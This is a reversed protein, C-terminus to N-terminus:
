SSSSPAHLHPMASVSVSPLIVASQLSRQWISAKFAIRHQPYWYLCHYSGRSCPHISWQHLCSLGWVHQQRMGLVSISVTITRQIKCHCENRYPTAQCIHSRCFGISIRIFVFRGLSLQRLIFFPNFRAPTTAIHRFHIRITICAGFIRGLVLGQLASTSLRFVSESQSQLASQTLFSHRSSGLLVLTPLQPQPVGSTPMSLSLATV